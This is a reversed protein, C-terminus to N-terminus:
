VPPAALADPLSVGRASLALVVAALFRGAPPGLIGTSASAPTKAADIGCQWVDPCGAADVFDWLESLHPRLAHVGCRAIAREVERVRKPNAKVTPPSASGKQEAETRALDRALVPGPAVFKAGRPLLEKKNSEKISLTISHTDNKARPRTMKQAPAHPIKCVEVLLIRRTNRDAGLEVRVFGHKALAAIWTQVVRVQVGYLGAFHANSAWCYGEVSCLATIEGYLLKANAPLGKCYRVSAPIVAYYSPQPNVVDPAAPLTNM